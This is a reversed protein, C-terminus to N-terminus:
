TPNVWSTGNWIRIVAPDVWSTGNWIKPTSVVWSTGNWVSVKQSPPTYSYYSFSVSSGSNVITGSAPSQTNAIVLNNNESTAGSTQPNPSSTLGVNSLASNAQSLTLGNLNPVTVQQPPPPPPPPPSGGSETSISVTGYDSTTGILDSVENKAAVRINYTTSSSLGPITAYTLTYNSDYTTWSGSWSPKYEIVYASVTKGGNDSVSWSFSVSSTSSGDSSVSPPTPMLYYRFYGVVSSDAGSPHLQTNGTSWPDDAGISTDAWLNFSSDNVRQIAIASTSWLGWRYLTDGPLAIASTLDFVKLSLDLTSTSVGAIVTAASRRLSTGSSDWLRARVTADAGYGACEFGIRDVMIYNFAGGVGRQNSPVTPTSRNVAMAHGASYPGQYARLNNPNSVLDFDQTAM